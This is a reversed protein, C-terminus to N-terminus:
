GHPNLVHLQDSIIAQQQFITNEIRRKERNLIIRQGFTDTTAQNLAITTQQLIEAYELLDDELGINFLDSSELIRNTNKVYDHIFLICKKLFLLDTNIASLNQTFTTYEQHYLPTTSYTCSTMLFLALFIFYTKKM